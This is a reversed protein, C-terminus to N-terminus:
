RKALPVYATHASVSKYAPRIIKGGTTLEEIRHACWGPMRSVAFLPTLLDQPIGLMRYVLGSYLDVNACVTKSGGKEQQLVQPTLREVSQLLRFVPEYETGEALKWANEKLLVARPDSKTYVAHGMGYILGTRDGAEKRVLKTLFAAVEDENSWDKVNEEIATIMEAVKINAGGHRRGKLSGVAAAYASYSDTAVSSLVRCAFTSNNGGGHEAHLMLCIDLLRAEEETFQRDARLTSLIHEATSEEPRIPHFFMSENDFYRRKVQYASVMIVPLRAIMQVAKRIEAELSQDEPDEKDFSYLALIARAMKNMVNASPAKVMMNDVFFDPLARYYGLLERFRSLENQDPLRGFLLLYATEEFGFRREAVCGAVLDRIDVGRYSLEGEIPEKEGENILYGHVNCISTLGVPVGTGDENRLGRLVKYKQYTEPSFSGSEQYCGCLEKLYGNPDFAM